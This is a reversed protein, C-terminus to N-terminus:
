HQPLSKFILTNYHVVPHLSMRINRLCIRGECELCFWLFNWYKSQFILVIYWVRRRWKGHRRDKSVISTWHSVANDFILFIYYMMKNATFIWLLFKLLSRQKYLITMNVPIKLFNAQFLLEIWYCFIHGVGPHNSSLSPCEHELFWAIEQDGFYGHIKDVLIERRCFMHQPEFDSTYSSCLLTNWARIASARLWCNERGHM